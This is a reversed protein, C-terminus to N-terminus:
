APPLEEQIEKALRQLTLIIKDRIMPFDPLSSATFLFAIKLTVGEPVVSILSQKELRYAEKLLRRVRNRHVARKFRKKSVSFLVKVPTDDKELTKTWVVRVPHVAFSRGEAFLTEIQKRRYLRETKHLGFPKM